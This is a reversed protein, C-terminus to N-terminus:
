WHDGHPECGVSETPSPSLSGRGSAHDDHEDHGETTTTVSTTLASDAGSLTSSIAAVQTTSVPGDCHWHDEHLECGVSETPSPALTQAAACALLVAVIISISSQM